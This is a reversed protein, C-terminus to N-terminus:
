NEGLQEKIQEILIWLYLMESSECYDIQIYLLNLFHTKAPERSTLLYIEKIAMFFATKANKCINQFKKNSLLDSKNYEIHRNKYRGLEYNSLRSFQWLFEQVRCMKLSDFYDEAAIRASKTDQWNITLMHDRLAVVEEGM